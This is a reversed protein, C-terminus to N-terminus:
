KKGITLTNFAALPGRLSSAIPYVAISTPESDMDAEYFVEYRYDFVGLITSVANLAELNRVGVVVFHTEDPNIHQFGMHEIYTNGPPLASVRQSNVGLKLAAHATQVIQQEPSMDQRTFFYSYYKVDM